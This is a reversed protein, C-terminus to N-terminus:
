QLLREDAQEPEGTEQRVRASRVAHMLWPQVQAGATQEPALRGHLSKGVSNAQVKPPQV